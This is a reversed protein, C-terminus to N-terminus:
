VQQVSEQPGVDVEEVEKEEGDEPLIEVDDEEIVELDSASFRASNQPGSCERTSLEDKDIQFAFRVDQKGTEDSFPKTFDSKWALFLLITKNQNDDIKQWRTNWIRHTANYTQTNTQRDTHFFTKTM